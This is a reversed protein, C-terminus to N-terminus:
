ALLYMGHLGSEVQVALLGGLLSHGLQDARLSELPVDLLGLLGEEFVREGLIAEPEAALVHQGDLEVSVAVLDLLLCVGHVFVVIAQGFFLDDVAQLGQKAALVNLVGQESIAPRACERFAAVQGVVVAEGNVGSVARDELDCDLLFASVAKFDLLCCVHCFEVQIGAHVNEVPEVVVCIFVEIVDQKAFEVAFLADLTRQWLDSLSCLPQELDMAACFACVRFSGLDVRRVIARHGRASVCVADRSAACKWILLLICWPTLHLFTNYWDTDPLEGYTIYVKADEFTLGHMEGSDRFPVLTSILEDHTTFERGKLAEIAADPIKLTDNGTAHNLLTQKSYLIFVLNKLMSVPKIDYPFGICMSIAESDSGEEEPLEDPKEPEDVELEPILDVDSEAAAEDADIYGNEILWPKVAELDAPDEASINADRDITLHGVTYGFSPPGNYIPDEGLMAALKNVMEKRNTCNTPITM